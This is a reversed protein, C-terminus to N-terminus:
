LDDDDDDDDLRNHGSSQIDAANRAVTTEDMDIAICHTVAYLLKEACKEKSTYMPLDLSFFCTHATPLMQDAPTSGRVSLKSIKHKRDWDQSSSPLRSRGWVFRLYRQRDEQSFEHLVQWFLQISPTAETVGDGYISNAKLIDIDVEPPGCVMLELEQAAFISLLNRPVQTALGRAIAACPRDLEHLRARLLAREFDGRRKLTVPTANGGPVLEVVRGDSGKMTFKLDLRSMEEEDEVERVAKVLKYFGLDFARVDELTVSDSCLQKWVFGPMDLVFPNKTRMAIGMLKGVFEFMRLAVHSTASAAPLWKGRCEGENAVQNPCPVFLPLAPTLLEQCAQNFVDRYPGGYDDAREGALITYWARHSNRLLSADQVAPTPALLPNRESKEESGNGHLQSFLQGFVTRTGKLDVRGSKLFQAAKNRDLTVTPVKNQQMWHDDGSHSDTLVREFLAKKVSSMVVGRVNRLSAALASEHAACTLLPVDELIKYHMLEEQTPELDNPSLTLPDEGRKSCVANVLRVLECDHELTLPAFMRHFLELRAANRPETAIRKTTERSYLPSITMRYGWEKATSTSGRKKSEGFTRRSSSLSSSVSSTSPLSSSLGGGGGEQASSGSGLLGPSQGEEENVGASSITYERQVIRNSAASQLAAVAAAATASAGDEDDESGVGAASQDGVQDLDLINNVHHLWGEEEALVQEVAEAARREAEQKSEEAMRDSHTLLYEAARNMDQNTANLAFLDGHSGRGQLRSTESESTSSRRSSNVQSSSTTTTRSRSSGRRSSRRSSSTSSSDSGGSGNANQRSVIRATAHQQEFSSRLQHLISATEVDMPNSGSLLTIQDDKNYFSFTPVLENGQQLITSPLPLRNFAVGWDDGNVALSMCRRPIDLTVRVIDGVKLRKGFRHRVKRGGHWCAMCGIWGWGKDDSGLYNAVKASKMAVGFFINASPGTRDVRVEWSNVGSSFGTTTFVTQWMKDKRLTATRGQNTVRIEPAKFDPTRYFSWDMTQPVPFEYHMTSSPVHVLSGGFCGQMAEVHLNRRVQKNPMQADCTLVLTKGFATSCRRDFRVVLAEAGPLTVEGKIRKSSFPHTSEVIATNSSMVLKLFTDEAMLFESPMRVRDRHVLADMIAALESLQQFWNEKSALPDDALDKRHSSSSADLGNAKSSDSSSSLTRELSADRTAASKVSSDRLFTVRLPRTQKITSWMEHRDFESIRRGKLEWFIDGPEVGFSQAAGNEKVHHVLLIDKNSLIEIGLSADFEVTFYKPKAKPVSQGGGEAIEGAPGEVNGKGPADLMGEAQGRSSPLFGASSPMSGQELKRQTLSVSVFVEALACLLSSFLPMEDMLGDKPKQAQRKYLSEMQVRLELLEKGLKGRLSDAPTRRIVMALMRIAKIRVTPTATRSFRLLAHVLQPSFVRRSWAGMGNKENSDFESFLQLIWLLLESSGHNSNTTSALGLHYPRLEEEMKVIAPPSRRPALGPGTGAASSTMNAVSFKTTLELGHLMHNNTEEESSKKKSEMCLRAEITAADVRSLSMLKSKERSRGKAALAASGESLVSDSSGNSRLTRAGGTSNGGAHRLFLGQDEKALVPVFTRSSNDIEWISVGVPRQAIGARGSGRSPSADSSSTNSRKGPLISGPISSGSASGTGSAISGRLTRRRSSSDDNEGDRASNAGRNSEGIGSADGARHSDGGLRVSDPGGQKNLKEPRYSWLGHQLTSLQVCSRHVCRLQQLDEMKPDPERQSHGRVAVCGLAVYGEPAVPQWLSVPADDETDINQWILRFRAPAVLLPLGNATMTKGGMGDDDSVVTVPPPADTDSSGNAATAVDGLISFGADAFPRWIRVTPGREVTVNKKRKTLPETQEEVRTKKDDWITTLTYSPGAQLGGPLFQWPGRALLVLEHLVDEALSRLVSGRWMEEEARIRLAKVIREDSSSSPPAELLLDGARAFRRLQEGLTGEEAVIAEYEVISAEEGEKGDNGLQASSGGNRVSHSATQTQTKAQSQLHSQSQSQQQQRAIAEADQGGIADVFNLPILGVAGTKLDKARGWGSKTAGLVVVTDDKKISLDGPRQPEFDFLVRALQQFEDPHSALRGQDRSSASTQKEETEGVKADGDAAAVQSPNAGSPASQAVSEVTSAPSTGQGRLGVQQVIGDHILRGREEASSDQDGIWWVRMGPKLDHLSNVLKPGGRGLSQGVNMWAALATSWEVEDDALIAKGSGFSPGSARAVEEGFVLLLKRRLVQIPDGRDVEQSITGSRIDKRISDPFARIYNRLFNRGSGDMALLKEQMDEVLNARAASSGRLSDVANMSGTAESQVMLSNELISVTAQRAHSVFLQRATEWIEANVQRVGCGLPPLSLRNSNRNKRPDQALGGGADAGRQDLSQSSDGVGPTGVGTSVAVQALTSTYIEYTRNHADQDDEALNIALIDANTMGDADDKCCENIIRTSSLDHESVDENELLWHIADSLSSTTCIAHACMKRSYGLATLMRAEAVTRAILAQENARLWNRARPLQYETAELARVCWATPLKLDSSLREALKLPDPMPIGDQASHAGVNAVESPSMVYSRLQLRAIDMAPADKTQDMDRFICFSSDIAWRDDELILIQQSPGQHQLVVERSGNVYFCIEGQTLNATMVVRTWVGPKIMGAKSYEICGISGNSKIYWDALSDNNLNTQLLAMFDSTAMSKEPVRVDLILSYQNLYVVGESGNGGFSHEFLLYCDRPVHFFDGDRQTEGVMDPADRVKAGSATQSSAGTAGEGEGSSTDDENPTETSKKERERILRVRARKNEPLLGGEFNWNCALKDAEASVVADPAGRMSASSLNRSLMLPTSPIDTNADMAPDTDEPVEKEALAGSSAAPPKPDHSTRVDLGLGKQAMTSNHSMRAFCMDCMRSTIPNRYQCIKCTWTQAAGDVITNTHASDSDSHEISAASKSAMSQTQDESVMATAASASGAVLDDRVSADADHPIGPVPPVDGDDLKRRHLELQLFRAHLTRLPVDDFRGRPAALLSTVAQLHGNSVFLQVMKPNDRLLLDVVQSARAKAIEHLCAARLNELTPSGGALNVNQQVLAVLLALLREPRLLSDVPVEIKPRPILESHKQVVLTSKTGSQFLSVRAIEPSGGMPRYWDLFGFQGDVESAAVSVSAGNHLVEESAGLVQLAGMMTWVRERNDEFVSLDEVDEPLRPIQMALSHLLARNICMNWGNQKFQMLSRLLAVLQASIAMDQGQGIFLLLQRLSFAPSVRQIPVCPLLYSLIDFALGSRVPAGVTFAIGFLTDVAWRRHRTVFDRAAASQKIVDLLLQLVFNMYLTQSPVRSARLHKIWSTIAEDRREEVPTSGTHMSAASTPTAKRRHRRLVSLEGATARVLRLLWDLACQIGADPILGEMRLVHRLTLAAARSARGHWLADMGSAVGLGVRTTTPGFDAQASESAATAVGSSKQRQGVLICTHHFGAALHLPRQDRLSLSFEGRNCIEVPFPLDVTSGNGLGGDKNRGWAIIRGYTTAALSHGTGCTVSVFRDDGSDWLVPVPAFVEYNHGLGLQGFDNIGFAHLTGDAIVVTFYYGCAVAECHLSRLKSLGDEVQIPLASLHKAPDDIGLQGFDNRGFTYLSGDEMVVASHEVGCAMSSARGLDALHNLRQPLTWMDATSGIGLQGRTNLGFAYITGDSTLILSHSYSTAALTVRKDRLAGEVRCPAYIKEYKHGLGLQGYQNFGWGYLHGSSTIALIHESGNSCCLRTVFSPIAIRRPLSVRLSENQRPISTAAAGPQPASMVGQGAGSLPESTSAFGAAGPGGSGGMVNTAASRNSHGMNRLSGAGRGPWLSGTEDPPPVGYSPTGPMTSAAGTTQSPLPPKSCAGNKNYGWVYVEGQTTLVGTIENGAVVQVPFLHKIVESSMIDKHPKTDGVGLEGYTNQGCVLLETEEGLKPNLPGAFKLRPKEQVVDDDANQEPNSSVPGSDEEDQQQESQRSRSQGSRGGLLQQSQSASRRHLVEARPLDETGSSPVAALLPPPGGSASAAEGGEAAASLAASSHVTRLLMPAKVDNNMSFRVDESEVIVHKLLSTTGASLVSVAPCLPRVKSRIKSKSILRDRDLILESTAHNYFHDSHRFIMCLAADMDVFLGIRQEHSLTACLISSFSDWECFDLPVLGIAYLMASEPCTQGPTCALEFYYKGAYLGHSLRITAATQCADATSEVPLHFCLGNKSLRLGSHKHERSWQMGLSQPLGEPSPLRLLSQADRGLMPEVIPPLGHVSAAAAELSVCEIIWQVMELHGLQGTAVCADLIATTLTPNRDGTLNRTRIMARVADAVLTRTVTTVKAERAFEVFAFIVHRRLDCSQELSGLLRCFVQLGVVEQEFSAKQQELVSYYRELQEPAFQQVFQFLSHDSILKMELLFSVRAVVHEGLMSYDVDHLAQKTQNIWRLVKMATQMAETKTNDEDFIVIAAYVARLAEWVKEAGPKNRFKMKNMKSIKAMIEHDTDNVIAQLKALRLELEASQVFGSNFLSMNIEGEAETEDDEENEHDGDFAPVGLNSQISMQRLGLLGSGDAAGLERPTLTAGNATDAAAAAAPDTFADISAAGGLRPSLRAGAGKCEKAIVLLVASWALDALWTRVHFDHPTCVRDIAQILEVIYPVSSKIEISPHHLIVVCPWTLSKLISKALAEEREIPSAHAACVEEIINVSAKSLATAYRNIVDVEVKDCLLLSRQMALLLNLVEARSTGRSALDILREILIMATGQQDQVLLESWFRLTAFKSLYTMNTITSMFTALETASPSLFAFGNGIARIAEEKVDGDPGRALAFLLQKMDRMTVQEDDQIPSSIFCHRQLVRLASIMLAPHSELRELLALLIRAIEFKVGAGGLPFRQICWLLIATGSESGAAYERLKSSDNHIKPRPSALQLSGSPGLEASDGTAGSNAVSGTDMDDLMVIVRDRVALVQLAAQAHFVTSTLLDGQFVPEPPPSVPLSPVAAENRPGSIDPSPTRTSSIDSSILSSHETPPSLVHESDTREVLCTFLRYQSKRRRGASGRMSGRRRKADQQQSSTASVSEELAVAFGESSSSIGVLRASSECCFLLVMSECAENKVLGCGHIENDGLVAVSHNAAASIHSIVQDSSFEVPNPVACISRHGVGLQGYQNRGCAFLTKGDQALFLSHADGAALQRTPQGLDVVLLRDLASASARGCQGYMNDGMAYVLGDSTRVLVHGTSCAVESVRVNTPLSQFLAHERLLATAGEFNKRKVVDKADAIDEEQQHGPVSSASAPEQTPSPLMSVKDGSDSSDGRLFFVDSDDVPLIHRLVPADIRWMGIAHSPIRVEREDDDDVDFDDDDAGQGDGAEGSEAEGDTSADMAGHAGRWRFSIAKRRRMPEESHGLLAREDRAAQAATKDLVELLLPKFGQTLDEDAFLRSAVQLLHYVSARGVALICLAELAETQTHDEDFTELLFDMTEDLTDSRLAAIGLSQLDRLLMERLERVVPASVERGLTQLAVLASTCLSSIIKLSLDESSAADSLKRSKAAIMADGGHVAGSGLASTATQVAVPSADAASFFADTTGPRNKRELLVIRVHELVILRRRFLLAAYLYPVVSEERGSLRAMSESFLAEQEARVHAKVPEDVQDDEQTPVADESGDALETEGVLTGENAEQAALALESGPVHLRGFNADVLALADENLLASEPVELARILDLLPESLIYDPSAADGGAASSM